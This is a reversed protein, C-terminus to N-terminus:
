DQQQLHVFPNSAGQGSYFYGRCGSATPASPGAGRPPSGKKRMIAESTKCCCFPTSPFPRVTTQPQPLSHVRFVFTSSSTHIHTHLCGLRRKDRSERSSEVVAFVKCDSSIKSAPFNSKAIETNFNKQNKLKKKQSPISVNFVKHSKQKVCTWTNLQLSTPREGGLPTEQTYPFFVFCFHFIGWAELGAAWMESRGSGKEDYFCDLLEEETGM